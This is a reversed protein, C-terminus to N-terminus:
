GAARAMQLALGTAGYPWPAQKDNRGSKLRWGILWVTWPSQRIASGLCSLLNVTGSLQQTDSGTGGSWSAKGSFGPLQLAWGIAGSLCPILGAAM